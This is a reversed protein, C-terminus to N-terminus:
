IKRVGVLRSLDAISLEYKSNTWLELSDRVIRSRLHTPARSYSSSALRMGSALTEVMTSIVFDQPLKLYEPNSILKKWRADCRSLAAPEMPLHPFPHDLFGAEAGTYRHYRERFEEEPLLILINRYGGTFAVDIERGGSAFSISCPPCEGGWWRGQRRAVKNPISFALLGPQLAGYVSVACNFAEQYVISEGLVFGMNSATFHGPSLQRYELEWPGSLLTQYEAADFIEQKHFQPASTM